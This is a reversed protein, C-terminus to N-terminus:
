NLNPINDRVKTQIPTYPEFQMYLYTSPIRLDLELKIITQQIKVTIERSSLPFMSIKLKRVEVKTQIYTYPEFQMCLNKM